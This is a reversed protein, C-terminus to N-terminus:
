FPRQQGLAELEEPSLRVPEGDEGGCCDRAMAEEGHIEGCRPCVWIMSVDPQCCEIADDEDDHITLCEECRWKPELKSM